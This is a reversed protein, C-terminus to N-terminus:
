GALPNGPIRARPLGGLLRSWRPEPSATLAARLLPLNLRERDHILARYFRFVGPRLYVSWHCIRGQATALPLGMHRLATATAPNDLQVDLWNAAGAIGRGLAARRCLPAHAREFLFDFLDNERTTINFFEATRGALSSRAAEARVTFDAGALLLVRHVTGEALLPVAGLIVRAGLSHGILDVRRAPAIRRIIQVLRALKLAAADASATAQWVSGSSDWGFAFCLGLPKRPGPLAFGLRRPWSVYRSRGHGSRPAFILAHPDRAPDVPRYGKGHVMIVVPAGGPLDALAAAIAQDPAGGEPRGLSLGNPTATIPILTM